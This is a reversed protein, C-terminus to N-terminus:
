MQGWHINVQNKGGFTM